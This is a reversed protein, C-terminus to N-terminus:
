TMCEIYLQRMAEALDRDKDTIRNGAEHTTLRVDLRNYINTWEPHHQMEEAIEAVANMFAMAERFDDFTFRACLARGDESEQWETMSM